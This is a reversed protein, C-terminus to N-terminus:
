GGNANALWAAQEREREADAARGQLALVRALLLRQRPSDPQRRVAVQQWALAEGSRGRELCLLAAAAPAEADRLDFRAAQRWADLAGADRGTAALLRALELRAPAHWWHTAAFGDTLALAGPLDGARERDSVGLRVLDWADPFRGAAGDLLRRRLAAWAPDGPPELRDLLRVAAAYEGPGAHRDNSAALDTAIHKLAAHAEDTRGARLQVTALNVRASFLTPYRATLEGLLSAATASDGRELCAVALGERMRPFDGGDRITQRYFTPGDVWDHARLWTRGGLGATAALVAAVAVRPNPFRAPLRPWPVDLAVGALFLLFGVSPLYLWHEAVSANLPFLNSVPLFGALFWAAGVRRLTRGRGPLWAGAAFAALVLAGTVALTDYYAPDDPNALGPAAFVQREMYLRDPFVMLRGYDGLARLMLVWRGLTGPPPPPAPAPPPLHRLGLCIGVALLGGALALLRGRRDARPAGAGPHAMLLWGAFLALWVFAIEKSCLGALFCAFAGAAMGARGAPRGGPALAGMCLLWAGVCFAMALSDARGAVYAVAASHVPHVVWLLALALATRDTAPTRVGDGPVLGPLVRRLLTHLLFGNAAHVLANTLHYGFPNLGWWYYDWLYTLTQIPRYFNSDGGFLTHRFVELCFIPSRILGNGRVLYNDDWLFEGGLAPGYVALTVAVFLLLAGAPHHLFAWASRRRLMDAGTLPHSPLIIGAPM